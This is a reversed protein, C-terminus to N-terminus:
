FILQPHFHSAPPILIINRLIAMLLGVKLIQNFLNLELYWVQFKM